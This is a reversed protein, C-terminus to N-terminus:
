QIHSPLLIILNPILTALTMSPNSASSMLRLPIATSTLVSDSYRNKLLEPVPCPDVAQLQCNNWLAQSAVQLKLFTSGFLTTNFINHVCCGHNTKLQLIEYKCNNPCLSEVNYNYCADHALSGNDLYPVVWCLYRGNSACALRLLPILEPICDHILDSVFPMCTDDCIFCFYRLIDTLNHIFEEPEHQIIGTVSEICHANIGPRSSIFSLMRQYDENECALESLKSMAPVMVLFLYLANFKAM